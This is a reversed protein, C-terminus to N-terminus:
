GRDRGNVVPLLWAVWNMQGPSGWQHRLTEGWGPSLRCGLDTANQLSGLRVATVPHVPEMMLIPHVMDGIAVEHRRCCVAHEFWQGDLFM